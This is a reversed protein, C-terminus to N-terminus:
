NNKTPLFFLICQSAVFFSTAISFLTNYFLTYNNTFRLNIWIKIAFMIFFITLIGALWLISINADNLRYASYKLYFIIPVLCCLGLILLTNETSFMFYSLYLVVGFIIGVIITIGSLKGMKISYESINLRGKQFCSLYYHESEKRACLYRLNAVGLVFFIILTCILIPMNIFISINNLKIDALHIGLTLLAILSAFFLYNAIGSATAIIRNKKLMRIRKVALVFSSYSVVFWLPVLSPTFSNTVQNYTMSSAIWETSINGAFFSSHVSNLFSSMYIGFLTFIVSIGVRFESYTISGNYNFLLKLITKDM